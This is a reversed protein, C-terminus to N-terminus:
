YKKNNNIKQFFIHLVHKTLELKWHDHIKENLHKKNKVYIQFEPDITKLNYEDSRNGSTYKKHPHTSTSGIIHDSINNM